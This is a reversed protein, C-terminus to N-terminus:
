LGLIKRAMAEAFERPITVVDEGGPLGIEAKNPLSVQYGQIAIDGNSTEYMTPCGGGGGCTGSGLLVRFTGANPLSVNQLDKNDEQEFDVIEIEAM